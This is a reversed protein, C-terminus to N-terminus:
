GGQDSGGRRADGTRIEILGEGRFNNSLTVELILFGLGLSVKTPAVDSPGDEHEADKSVHEAEIDHDAEHNGEEPEQLHLINM